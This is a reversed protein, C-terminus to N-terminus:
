GAEGDGNGKPTPKTELYRQLDNIVGNIYERVAESGVEAKDRGANEALRTARAAAQRCAHRFEIPVIVDYVSCYGEPIGLRDQQAKRLKVRQLLTMPKQRNEPGGM